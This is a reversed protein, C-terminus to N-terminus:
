EVLRVDVENDGLIESYRDAWAIAEERSSVNVISFGAILEKSETFPGDVWARKDRPGTPLRSAKASPALRQAGLLVGARTMEESLKALAAAREPNLPTGAETRADGKFLLLFRGGVVDAPKPAMKLDWPEVVPGIEIEVDGLVGAFRGAHEIAEEMSGARIMAFSAVLENEGQLPGQTVTAKGGAYRLRVRQVSRHLGAGDVFVGSRLGEGILRGMGEVLEKPPFVGAEMKADVKHMVMFRM